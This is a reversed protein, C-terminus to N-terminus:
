IHHKTEDYKKWADALAPYSVELEAMVKEKLETSSIDEQNQILPMVLSTVKTAIELAEEDSLGADHGAAVISNKLKEEKFPVRTGDTKTVFNSM